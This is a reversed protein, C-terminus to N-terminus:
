RGTGKTTIIGKETEEIMSVIMDTTLLKEMIEMFYRVFVMSRPVNTRYKIVIIISPSFLISISGAQALAPYRISQSETDVIYVHKSM